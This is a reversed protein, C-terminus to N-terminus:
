GSKLGHGSVVVVASAGERIVRADRLKRLGGSPLAGSPEAYIGQLALERTASAIEDESLTVATGGSARVAALVDAGRPPAGVLVGDAISPQPRGEPVPADLGDRWASAIPDCAASQVIHLCPVPRGALRYGDFVGLLLGGAGVPVIIHEIGGSTQEALEVGLSALGRRYIPHYLHSAYFSTAAAKRAAATVDSRTGAIREVRAGYALIQRLKAEPATAPVFLRAAIGARACHAALSAGANGSSDEVVEDISRQALWSVLAATGRDKYSGTPHLAELKANVAGGLGPLAVLPTPRLALTIDPDIFPEVPEPDNLVGECRPCAWVVQDETCAQGCQSCHWSRLRSTAM